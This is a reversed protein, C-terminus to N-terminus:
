QQRPTSTWDPRLKRLENFKARRSKEAATLRVSENLERLAAKKDGAAKARQSAKRGAKAHTVAARWADYAAQMVEDTPVPRVARDADPPSIAPTGGRPASLGSTTQDARLWEPLVVAAEDREHSLHRHRHADPPDLAPLGVMVGRVEGRTLAAYVVGLREDLEEITLRGEATHQSLVSAIRDRDSDGIRLSGEDVLREREGGDSM